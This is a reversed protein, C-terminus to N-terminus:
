TSDPSRNPLTMRCRITPMMESSGNVTTVPLFIPVDDFAQSWEAIVGYFHPHSASIAELGGLARIERITRDDVLSAPDWLMTGNDTRILLNRQGIAFRPHTGIGWPDDEVEEIMNHYGDRETDPM